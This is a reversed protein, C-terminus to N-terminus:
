FQEPHRPRQFIEKSVSPINKKIWGDTAAALNSLVGVHILASMIKSRNISYASLAYNKTTDTVTKERIFSPQMSDSANVMLICAGRMVINAAIQGNDFRKGEVLYCYWETGLAEAAAAVAAGSLSPCKMAISQLRIAYAYTARCGIRYASPSLNEYILKILSSIKACDLPKSRTTPRVNM